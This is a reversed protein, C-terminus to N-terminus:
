GGPADCSVGAKDIVCRQQDSQGPSYTNTLQRGDRRTFGFTHAVEPNFGIDCSQGQAVSCKAEGDVSVTVTLSLQNQVTVVGDRPAADSSSDPAGAVAAAVLIWGLIM